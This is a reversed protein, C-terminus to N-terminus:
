PSQDGRSGRCAATPGGCSARGPSRPAAPTPSLESREGGRDLLVREGVEAIVQLLELAIRDGVARVDVPRLIRGLVVLDDVIEQAGAPRSREDLRLRHQGVLAVHAREQFLAADDHHLRIQALADLLQVVLRRAVDDHRGHVLELRVDRADKRVRDAGVALVAVNVVKGFALALVRPRIEQFRIGPHRARVEGDGFRAGDDDARVFAIRIEGDVQRLEVDGRDPDLFEDRLDLVEADEHPHQRAAREARRDRLERRVEALRPLAGLHVDHQDVVAPGSRRPIGSKQYESLHMRQPAHM